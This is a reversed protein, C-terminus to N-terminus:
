IEDESTSDHDSEVRYYIMTERDVDYGHRINRQHDSIVEGEENTLAYPKQSSNDVLTRVSEKARQIDTCPKFEFDLTMKSFSTEHSGCLVIRDGEKIIGNFLDFCGQM